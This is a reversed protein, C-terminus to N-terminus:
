VGNQRSAVCDAYHAALVLFWLVSFGIFFVFAVVLVRGGDGCFRFRSDGCGRGRRRRGQLLDAEGPEGRLRRGALRRFGVRQQGVGVPLDPFDTVLM